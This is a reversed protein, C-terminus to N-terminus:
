KESIQDAIRTLASFATTNSIDIIIAQKLHWKEIIAEVFNTRVAIILHNCSASFLDTISHSWGEDTLEIRGVEDIIIIQNKRNTEPKLCEVGRLLGEPYIYFIRFRASEDKGNDRLFPYKEHSNLEELDYGVTTGNDIVRLACFGGTTIKKENLLGDLEKM